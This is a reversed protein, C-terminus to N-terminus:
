RAGHDMGYRSLYEIVCDLIRSILAAPLITVGVAEENLPFAIVRDCAQVTVVRGVQELSNFERFTLLKDYRMIVSCWTSLLLPIRFYILCLLVFWCGRGQSQANRRTYMSKTLVKVAGNDM